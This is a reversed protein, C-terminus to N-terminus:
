PLCVAQVKDLWPEWTFDDVFRWTQGDPGRLVARDSVGVALQVPTSTDNPGLDTSMAGESDLSVVRAMPTGGLLVMLDALGAWGVDLAPQGSPAWTASTLERWGIFRLRDGTRVIAAVGLSSRGQNEVVVAVRVGDPAPAFSRIRGPPLGAADVALERGDKAARLRAGRTRDLVAWLEGQRTWRVGVFHSGSLEVRGAGDRVGISRVRTGDDTVVGLVQGDPRVAVASPRNTVGNVPQPASLPDVWSARQLTGDRVLYVGDVASTPVPAGQGFDSTTVVGGTGGVEWFTGDGRIRLGNVGELSSLSWALEAALRRRADTNLRDMDGTLDVTAVGAANLTVSSAELATPLAARYAAAATRDPGTLVARVTALLGPTGTQVFRPDPVLWNGTADWFCVDSRVWTSAFLSQSVLLGRPPRSIRWQLDTDRVLGFDHHLDTSAPTFSGHTDLTGVLPATLVVGSESVQPPYGGAYIEVGSEPRWQAAAEETLFQRAVSYGPQYTAMAHLFGEVILGPSAGRAPPVPAIDVGPNAQQQAPSHREVPGATPVTVCGALLALGVLVAAAVRLRRM